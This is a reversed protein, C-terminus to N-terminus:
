EKKKRFPLSDYTASRVEAVEDGVLNYIRETKWFSEEKHVKFFLHKPTYSKGAEAAEKHKIREWERHQAICVDVQMGDAYYQMCLEPKDRNYDWVDMELGRFSKQKKKEEKTFTRRYTQGGKYSYRYNTGEFDGYVDFFLNESCLNEWGEWQRYADMHSVFDALYADMDREAWVAYAKVDSGALQPLPKGGDMLRFYVKETNDPCPPREDKRHDETIKGGKYSFLHFDDKCAYVEFEVHKWNLGDWKEKVEECFADMTKIAEGLMVQSKPMNMRGHRFGDLILEYSSAEIRVLEDEDQKKSM